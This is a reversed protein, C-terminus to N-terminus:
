PSTYKILRILADIEESSLLEKFAPMPTGARGDSIIGKVEADGLAALSEPSLAPALGSVGQREAGHCAACHAGYLEDVDTASPGPAPPSVPAPANGWEKIFIVLDKIQHEGLPGGEERGFAPMGTGPGGGRNIVKALAGEGLQSGKLAPGVQGEGQLGHCQACNQRYLQAGRTVAEAQLHARAAEQRGPETAWYVAIFIVLVLTLVLGIIIKGQM